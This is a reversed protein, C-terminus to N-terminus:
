ASRMLWFALPRGGPNDCGWESPPGVPANRVPEPVPSPLEVRTFELKHSEGDRLVELVYETGIGGPFRGPERADRDNVRVLIDGPELGAIHVPSCPEVGIVVPFRRKTIDSQMIDLPRYRIGIYGDSPDRPIVLLEQTTAVDRVCVAVVMAIGVAFGNRAVSSM